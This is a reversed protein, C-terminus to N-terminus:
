EQNPNSFIDTYFKPTVFNTVTVFYSSNLFLNSLDNSIQVLGSM